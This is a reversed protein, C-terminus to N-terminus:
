INLLGKWLKLNYDLLFKEDLQITFKNRNRKIEIFKNYVENYNNYNIINEQGIIEVVAGSKNDAIVPTGLYYSEAFVCGFTEQFTSSIVCCATKIVQAYEQKTVPGLIVINDKYKNKLKQEYDKFNHYDYGPSMLTLTTSNDKEYIFDFISIVKEIGKQWASAYVINNINIKNIENTTKLEEEYLINYILHNRNEEIVIDYKLLFEEFLKKCFLSNYIFNYNKNTQINNLYDKKFQINNNNNAYYNILTTDNRLFLSSATIDHIWLYVKNNQIKNLIIQNNPLFRQFIIIDDNSIHDVFNNFNDYTINDIKIIKEMFNYCYIHTYNSLKEILNYFQYESAGIPRNKISSHTHSSTYDVFIINNSTM